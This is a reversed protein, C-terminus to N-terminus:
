DSVGGGGTRRWWAALLWCGMAWASGVCWGALVDTPWHVGLYVRTLGILLTLTTAVAMVYVAHWRGSRSQALLAGLTLYTVASMMAHSSPFSLTEVVVGHPVLDPRPRDFGLKLYTGALMASSVTILILAASGYRRDLALYGAALLSVLGTVTFGGLSTIDRAAIDLWQPGIPQSPDGPFRLLLLVREDFAHTYGSVVSDSLVAFGLLTAAFVLIAALLGIDHHTRLLRKIM